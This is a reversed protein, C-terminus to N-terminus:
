RPVLGWYAIDNEFRVSVLQAGIVGLDTLAPERDRSEQHGRLRITFVALGGETLTIDLLADGGPTMGLARLIEDSRQMKEIVPQVSCPILDEGDRPQRLLRDLDEALVAGARGPTLDDLV